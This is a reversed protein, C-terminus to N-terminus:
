WGIHYAVRLLASHVLNTNVQNIDNCNECPTRVNLRMFRYALQVHFADFVQMGLGAGFMPQYYEDPNVSPESGSGDFGGDFVWGGEMFVYPTFADPTHVRKRLLVATPDTEDPGSREVYGEPINVSDATGDICQFQCNNPEFRVDTKLSTGSFTYRLQGLVPIRLRGGESTVGGGLALSLNNGLMSGFPAVLVDAGFYLTNIGIKQPTETSGDTGAYALFGGLEAWSTESSPESNLQFERVPLIPQYLPPLKGLSIGMVMAEVHSAQIVTDRCNGDERWFLRFAQVTEGAVVTTDRVISSFQYPPDTRGGKLRVSFHEDQDRGCPIGCPGCEEVQATADYCVIAISAVLVLRRLTKKLPSNLTEGTPVNFKFVALDVVWYYNCRTYNGYNSADM